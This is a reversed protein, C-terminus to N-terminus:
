LVPPRFYNNPTSISEQDAQETPKVDFLYSLSFLSSWARNRDNLPNFLHYDAAIRWHSLLDYNLGFLIIVNRTVTTGSPMPFSDSQNGNQLVQSGGSSSLTTMSMGVGTKLGLANPNGVNFRGQVGGNAFWTFRTINPDRGGGPLTSGAEVFPFIWPATFHLGGLLTLEPDFSNKTGQRDVQVTGMFDTKGGVGLSWSQWSLLTTPANASALDAIRGIQQTRHIRPFKM